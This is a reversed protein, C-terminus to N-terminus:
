DWTHSKYGEGQVYKLIRYQDTPTLTLCPCLQLSMMCSGSPDAVATVPNTCTFRCDDSKGAEQRAAIHPLKPHWNGEVSCHGTEQLVVCSCM